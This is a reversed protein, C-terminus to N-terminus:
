LAEVVFERLGVKIEMVLLNRSFEWYNGVNFGLLDFNPELISPIKIIKDNGRLSNKVRAVSEAFYVMYSCNPDASLPDWKNQFLFKYDEEM